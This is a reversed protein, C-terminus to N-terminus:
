RGDAAKWSVLTNFRETDPEGDALPGGPQPEGPVYYFQLTSWDFGRRRQLRLLNDTAQANRLAMAYADAIVKRPDEALAKPTIAITRGYVKPWGIPWRHQEFVLTEGDMRQTMWVIGKRTLRWRRM